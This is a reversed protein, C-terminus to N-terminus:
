SLLIILVIIVFTSDPYAWCGPFSLNQRAFTDVTPLNVGFLASYLVEADVSTRYFDFPCWITGTPKYSPEPFYPGNHCNELTGTINGLLNAWLAIDKQGGCSDLKYSDFKFAKFAAVDGIFHYISSNQENGYCNNGYWGSLLGLSHAYNNMETMNPFRTINVIPNGNIDHYGKHNPGSNISQWADDLGVDNYGLDFLSTPVGDVSRNRSVMADMIEIMLTQNVNLGFLNWSRWGRSPKKPTNTACHTSIFAFSLLLLCSHLPLM